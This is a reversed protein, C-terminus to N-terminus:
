QANVHMSALHIDPEHQVHVVAAAELPTQETCTQVGIASLRTLALGPLVFRPLDVKFASAVM